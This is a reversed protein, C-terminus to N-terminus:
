SRAGRSHTMTRPPITEEALEGQSFMETMTIAVVLALGSEFSGMYDMSGLLSWDDDTNYARADDVLQGMDFSFLLIM